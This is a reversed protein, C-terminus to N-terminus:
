CGANSHGGSWSESLLSQLRGDCATVVYDSPTILEPTASLRLISFIIKLCRADLLSQSKFGNSARSDVHHSPQLAPPSTELVREETPCPWPDNESLKTGHLRHWHHIIRM